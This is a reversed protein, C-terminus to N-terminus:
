FLIVKWEYDQSTIFIIIINKIIDFNCENKEVNFSLNIIM